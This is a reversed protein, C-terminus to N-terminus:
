IRLNTAQSAFSDQRGPLPVLPYVGLNGGEQSDGREKPIAQRFDSLPSRESIPSRCLIKIVTPPACHAGMEKGIRLTLYKAAVCLPLEVSPAAYCHRM